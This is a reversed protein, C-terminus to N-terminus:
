QVFNVRTHVKRKLESTWVSLKIRQAQKIVGSDLRCEDNIYKTHAYKKHIDNPFSTKSTIEDM